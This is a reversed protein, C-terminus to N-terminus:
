SKPGLIKDEPDRYEGGVIDAESIRGIFGEGGDDYTVSLTGPGKHNFHFSAGYRKGEYWYWAFAGKKKGRLIADWDSLPIKATPSCEGYCWSVNVDVYKRKTM